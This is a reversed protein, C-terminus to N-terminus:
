LESIKQVSNRHNNKINGYREIFEEYTKIGQLDNLPTDYYEYPPFFYCSRNGCEKSVISTHYSNAYSDRTLVILSHFMDKFESDTSLDKWFVSVVEDGPICLKYGQLYKENSQDIINLYLYGHGFTFYILDNTHKSFRGNYIRKFVEEHYPMYEYLETIIEKTLKAGYINLLVFESEEYESSYVAEDYVATEKNCYNCIRDTILKCSTILIIGCMMLYFQISNRM